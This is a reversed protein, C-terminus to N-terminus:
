CPIYLVEQLTCHSPRGNSKELPHCRWLERPFTIAISLSSTAAVTIPARVLTAVTALKPMTPSTITALPLAVLLLLLLLGSTAMHQHSTCGVRGTQFIDPDDNIRSRTMVHSM